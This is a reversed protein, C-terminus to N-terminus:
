AEKLLKEFNNYDTMERFEISTVNDNKTILCNRYVFGKQTELINLCKLFLDKESEIIGNFNDIKNLVSQLCNKYSNNILIRLEKKDATYDFEPKKATTLLPLTNTNLCTYNRKFYKEAGKAMEAVFEKKIDEPKNIWGLLRAVEVNLAKMFEINFKVHMNGNKYIKYEMFYENSKEFLVYCKEGHAQPLDCLGVKFGLNRAITFIDQLTQKAGDQYDSLKGSYWDTRFPSSMIIRYDLTYHSIEEPNKFCNYRYKSKQFVKQNSKYPKVNAPSTLGKYFDIIQENYYENANKLVWLIVPYINAITFDINHSHTFKDLLKKRTKSTLRSTIEDLEEFALQWYKAKTGSAKKKLAEKVANKSIGITELIDVDLGAIAKFHNYLTTIEDDYLDVLIKAKSQEANVLKNKINEKKIKEQDWENLDKKDRMKFTDDFWRDFATENYEKLDRYQEANEKTIKIVEVKARAQREAHLFDFSGLSTAFSKTKKIATQIKESDKWREPIVLFIRKTNAEYILRETWQEYESYPPNCFINNVPKDLLMTANFDIGLCIVDRDMKELLIKSKEIVYYNYIRHGKEHDKPQLDYNYGKGDIYSNRFAQEKANYKRNNEDAIENYYKRFNCTGAGIDLWEGGDSYKYVAEIMEKTTPYFEFDQNNEKLEQILKNIPM